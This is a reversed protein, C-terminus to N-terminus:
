AFEPSAGGETRAADEQTSCRLQRALAPLDSYRKSFSLPKTGKANLDLTNAVIGTHMMPDCGEFAIDLTASPRFWRRMTLRWGTDHPELLLRARTPFPGFAAQPFVVLKPETPTARNRFFASLIPDLAMTRCFVVRRHVWNFVLLSAGLILLNVVMAAVPSYAYLVMLGACIAKNLAEFCADVAPIPTAWILFEFFFRVAHIVIMNIAMALMLLMDATFSFLGAQQYVVEAQDPESANLTLIIKLTLITAIGAYAEVHDVAQAFPKSVKTLRPLSTLVTLVLFTWFVAPNALPSHPSLLGSQMPLWDGGFLAMGSMCTVGFFPSLAMPALPGLWDAIGLTAVIESGAAIEASSVASDDDLQKQLKDTILGGVADTATRDQAVTPAANSLNLASAQGCIVAVVLLPILLRAIFFRPRTNM